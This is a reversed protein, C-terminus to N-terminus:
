QQNLQQLMRYDNLDFSMPTVTIAGAAISDVDTDAGPLEVFPEDTSWYYHRQKPDAGTVYPDDHRTLKMPVYKWIPKEASDEPSVASQPINVNLLGTGGSALTMCEIIGLVRPVSISAATSFVMEQAYELSLAVGPLRFFTAERAAAVTGSYIANIGTNLGENIGSIVLDPRQDLLQMVGLKVCDAPTGNVVWVSQGRVTARTPVLPSLYTISHSVGSQQVQPAIIELRTVRRDQRLEEAAAWLGEAHIGDDNTLLVFMAFGHNSSLFFSSDNNRNFEM